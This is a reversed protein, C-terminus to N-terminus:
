RLGYLEKQFESFESPSLFRRAKLEKFEEQTMKGLMRRDIAKQERKDYAAREDAKKKAKQAKQIIPRLKHYDARLPIFLMETRTMERKVGSKDDLQFMPEDSAYRFTEVDKKFRKYFDKYEPFQEFFFKEKMDRVSDIIWDFYPLEETRTSM